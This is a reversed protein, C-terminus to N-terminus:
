PHTRRAPDAAFAEDVFEPDPTTDTPIHSLDVGTEGLLERIAEETEVYAGEGRRAYRVM